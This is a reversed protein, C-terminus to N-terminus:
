SMVKGLFDYIVIVPALLALIVVYFFRKIYAFFFMISQVVFIAYLIAGQLTLKNAYWGKINGDDDTEYTWAADKFYQGMSSILTKPDNRSMEGTVFIKSADVLLQYYSRTDQIHQWLLDSKTKILLEFEGSIEEMDAVGFGSNIYEEKFNNFGNDSEDVASEGKSELWFYNYYDLLAKTYEKEYRASNGSSDILKEIRKIEDYLAKEKLYNEYGEYGWSQSLSLTAAKLENKFFTTKEFEERTASNNLMDEIIKITEVNKIVSIDSYLNGLTNKEDEGATWLFSGVERYWPRGKGGNADGLRWEAYTRNALLYGAIDKNSYKAFEVEEGDENKFTTSITDTNSIYNKVDNFDVEKTEGLPTSVNVNPSFLWGWLTPLGGIGDQKELFNDVRVDNDVVLDFALTQKELNNTLITSAMEVLSENIYFIFSMAYHMGFLAVISFLFKMLAEKYKAKESALSSVALKIAMLGVVVGLFAVALTFVTSYISVVIQALPTDQGNGDKFLSHEAPNLFNVDLFPITNFIVRDAWPFMNAGTLMQFAAGVLYEIWSALAYILQAIADLLVNNKMKGDLDGEQVSGNDGYEKNIAAYTNTSFPFLVLFLLFIVVVIKKKGKIM